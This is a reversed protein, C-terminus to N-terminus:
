SGFYRYRFTGDMIDLPACVSPNLVEMPHGRPLVFPRLNATVGGASGNSTCGVVGGVRHPGGFMQGRDASEGSSVGTARASCRQLADCRPDREKSLFDSNCYEKLM